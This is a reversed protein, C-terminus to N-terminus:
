EQVCTPHLCDHANMAHRVFIDHTAVHPPSHKERPTKHHTGMKAHTCADIHYPCDILVNHGSSTLRPRSAHRHMETIVHLCEECCSPELPERCVTRWSQGVKSLPRAYIRRGRSTQANRMVNVPHKWMTTASPDERDREGRRPLAPLCRVHGYRQGGVGLELRSASDSGGIGEDLRRGYNEQQDSPSNCRPGLSGSISDSSSPRAASVFTLLTVHPAPRCRACIPCDHMTDPVLPVDPVRLCM